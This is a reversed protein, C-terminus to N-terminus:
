LFIFDLVLTNYLLFGTGSYLSKSFGMLFGTEM